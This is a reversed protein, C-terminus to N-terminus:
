PGGVGEAMERGLKKMSGRDSPQDGGGGGKLRPPNLNPGNCLVMMWNHGLQPRVVQQTTQNILIIKSVGTECVVSSTVICLFVCILFLINLLPGGPAVHSYSSVRVQLQM